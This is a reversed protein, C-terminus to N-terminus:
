GKILKMIDIDLCQAIQDITTVSDVGHKIWKRVTAPDAGFELAFKTQTKFKSYKIFQKLRQGIAQRLSIQM